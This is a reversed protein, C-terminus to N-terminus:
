KLLYSIKHHRVMLADWYFTFYLIAKLEHNATIPCSTFDCFSGSAIPIYEDWVLEQVNFIMFEFGRTTMYTISFIATVRSELQCVGNKDM